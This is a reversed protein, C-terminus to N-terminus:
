VFRRLAKDSIIEDKSGMAIDLYVEVAFLEQPAICRICHKVNYDILKNRHNYSILLEDITKFLEEDCAIFNNM